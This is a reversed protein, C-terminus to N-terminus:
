AIEIYTNDPNFYILVDGSDDDIAYGLIRVIDGSASPATFDFHGATTSLYVPLGDVAGSGPVNLIETSPVRVFGNLLLGGTQSSVGLGVALLSASTVESDADALAWIATSRLYWVQGATTTTDAGPSYKLIKGAGEGSSYSNEFTTSHFDYSNSLNTLIGVSTINPQTAQTTATNPALGAITAVTGSQGTTDQNLTPIAASALGTVHGYTDLTVDQIYTSGSNDVSAQSSTDHHLDEITNKSVKDNSDIVLVNTETTTSLNEIYVDGRFRSVFDWIHQGIWKM